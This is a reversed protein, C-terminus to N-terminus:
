IKKGPCTYRGGAKGGRYVVGTGEVKISMHSQLQVEENRASSIKRLLSPIEIWVPGAAPAVPIAITESSTAQKGNRESRFLGYKLIFRTIKPRSSSQSSFAGTSRIYEQKQRRGLPWSRTIYITNSSSNFHLNRGQIM